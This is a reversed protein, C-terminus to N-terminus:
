KNRKKDYERLARLTDIQDRLTSIEKHAADREREATALAARLRINENYLEEAVTTKAM